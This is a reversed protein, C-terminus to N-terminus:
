FPLPEDLPPAGDGTPAGESLQGSSNAMEGKSDLFKIVNATVDLSCRPNGDRRDIYPRPADLEGKIFVKAGKHLYQATTEALQRWATVRFWVTRQATQGNEQKWTKNVAVSFVTFPTGNSLYHMVPESGLYGIVDLQQYM